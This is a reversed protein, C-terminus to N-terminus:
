KIRVIKVTRVGLLSSLRCYYTGPSVDDSWVVAHRGKEMVENTLRAIRAGILNYVDIVVHCRETLSYDILAGERFPNPYSALSFKPSQEYAREVIATALVVEECDSWDGWGRADNYGKV